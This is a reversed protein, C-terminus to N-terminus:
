EPYVSRKIGGIYVAGAARMHTMIAYRIADMSHDDFKVPEPLV